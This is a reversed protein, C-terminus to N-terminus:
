KFRSEPEGTVVWKGNEVRSPLAAASGYRRDPGYWIPPLPDIRIPSKKTSELETFLREQTLEDGLRLLIQEILKAGAWGAYAIEDTAAPDHTKHLKALFDQYDPADAAPAARLAEIGEMLGGSVGNMLDFTWAGAGTWTPEYGISKAAKLVGPVAVGGLLVVLDAGADRVRKVNQVYSTADRDFSETVAIKLGAEKAAKGFHDRMDRMIDQNEWMVAVTAKGDPDLRTKIFSPVAEALLELPTPYLFAVDSDQALAYPLAVSLYPTGRREFEPLAGIAPDAGIINYALFVDDAMQRAAAAGGSVTYQDD